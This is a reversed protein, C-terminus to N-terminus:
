QKKNFKLFLASSKKVKKRGLTFWQHAKQHLFQIFEINTIKLFLYKMFTHESFVVLLHTM